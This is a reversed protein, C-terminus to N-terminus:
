IKYIPMMVFWLKEDNFLVWKYENDILKQYFLMIVLIHSTGKHCIVSQLEYKGNSQTDANLRTILESKEQKVNVVPGSQNNDELIGDDDPNAFLWEVAASIDNNNLVLAKKALQTSFGMAAVNDILDQSPGSDDTTTTSAGGHSDNPNFPDDIDADDM